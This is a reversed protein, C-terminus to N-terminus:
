HRSSPMMAAVQQHQGLHERALKLFVESNARLSQGAMTDFSATLREMAREISAARESELDEQAKLQSSAVALEIALAQERRRGLWVGAIGGIILGLTLSFLAILLLDSSM